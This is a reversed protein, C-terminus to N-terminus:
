IRQPCRTRSSVLQSLLSSIGNNVGLYFPVEGAADSIACRELVFDVGAFDREIVSYLAPNAEILLGHWRYKSLLDYSNSGERSHAGVNVPIGHREPNLNGLLISAEGFQSQDQNPASAGPPLESSLIGGRERM